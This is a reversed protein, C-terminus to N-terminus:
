RSNRKGPSIISAPDLLASVSIRHTTGLDGYPAWAYDVTFQHFRFGLGGTLNVWPFDGLEQEKLLHDYGARVFLADTIDYEFGARAEGVQDLYGVLEGGLFFQPNLHKGISVFAGLPVDFDGVQPGLNFVGFGIQWDENLPHYLGGLPYYFGTLSLMVGATDHGDISERAVKIAAGYAFETSLRRGYGATLLMDSASFSGVEAFGAASSDAVTRTFSGAGLYGLSANFASYRDLPQFYAVQSYSTDALYVLHQLSLERGELWPLIAPNVLSSQSNIDSDIEGMGAIRASPNIKLFSFISTGSSSPYAAQLFLFSAAFGAAVTKTINHFQM